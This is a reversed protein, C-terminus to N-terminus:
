SNVLNMFYLCYNIREEAAKRNQCFIGSFVEAITLSARVSNKLSLLITKIFIALFFRWPSARMKGSHFLSVICFDFTPFHKSSLQTLGPASEKKTESSHYYWVVNNGTKKKKKLRGHSNFLFHCLKQLILLSGTNTTLVLYLLLKSINFVRKMFTLFEPVQEHFTMSIIKCCRSSFRIYNTM